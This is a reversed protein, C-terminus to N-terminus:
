RRIRWAWVGIAAAFTAIALADILAGVDRGPADGAAGYPIRVIAPLHGLTADGHVGTWTVAPMTAGAAAAAPLVIALHVARPRGDTAITPLWIPCRHAFWPPQEARYHFEYDRGDPRLVLSQTRGITRVDSAQRAGRVALLEIRSGDVAEIRHEIESAGDVSLTLNVECATPSSVTIQVTASRVVPAATAAVAIALMSTALASGRVHRSLIM